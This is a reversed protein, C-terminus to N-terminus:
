FKNKSGFCKLVYIDDSYLINVISNRKFVTITDSLISNILGPVTTSNSWGYLIILHKNEKYKNEILLSNLKM